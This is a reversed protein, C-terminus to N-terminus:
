PSPAITQMKSHASTTLDGAVEIASDPKSAQSWSRIGTEQWHLDKSNLHYLEQWPHSAQISDQSRVKGGDLWSGIPAHSSHLLPHFRKRKGEGFCLTYFYRRRKLLFTWLFRYNNLEYNDSGLSVSCM